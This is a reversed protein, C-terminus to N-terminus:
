CARCRLRPVLATDGPATFFLGLQVVVAVASFGILMAGLVRCLPRRRLPPGLDREFPLTTMSALRSQASGSKRTGGSQIVLRCVELRVRSVQYRPRQFCAPVLKTIGSTRKHCSASM